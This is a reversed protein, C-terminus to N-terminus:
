RLHPPGYGEFPDRGPGRSLAAVAALTAIVGSGGAWDLLATAIIASAPADASLPLLTVLVVIMAGIWCFARLPRAATAVLVHLLATAQVTMAGACIGYALAATDTGTATFVPVEVRLLGHLLLVSAAALASAASACALGCLWVRRLDVGPREALADHLALFDTFRGPSAETRRRTVSRCRFSRAYSRPRATGRRARRPPLGDFFPEFPTDGM